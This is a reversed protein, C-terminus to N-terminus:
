SKKEALSRQRLAQVMKQVLGLAQVMKQVLGLAQVMQWVRVPVLVRAMLPVM